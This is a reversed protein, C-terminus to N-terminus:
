VRSLVNEGCFLNRSAFEPPATERLWKRYAAIKTDFAYNPSRMKYKPDLAWKPAELANDNALKHATAALICRTRHDGNQPEDCILARKEENGCLRFNDLFNGLALEFDRKNPIDALKLVIV